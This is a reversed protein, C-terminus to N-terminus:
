DQTLSNLPDINKNEIYYNRVNNLQKDNLGDDVNISALTTNGSYYLPISIDYNSSSKVVKTGLMQAMLNLWVDDAYKCYNLFIKENLVEDHLSNPPFLTGGGSTFFVNFAPSSQKYIYEWQNYPLVMKDELKIEVARHCCIAQPNEIHSKMLVSILSSPYIFDDDM